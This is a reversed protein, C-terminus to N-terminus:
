QVLTGPSWPEFTSMIHLPIQANQLPTIAEKHFVQAGGHVVGLLQQYSMHAYPLANHYRNPDRDFVGPVDTWNECLKAGVREAILSATIDSGGRPFTKISQSRVDYGYFGPIVIRAKSSWPIEVRITEGEFFIVDSADAFEWGTIKSLLYASLWEGFSVRASEVGHEQLSYLKATVVQMARLGLGLENVLLSVREVCAQIHNHILLDTMKLCGPLKGPASVVAIRREPNENLIRAVNKISKGCAMSTGGFKAVITM